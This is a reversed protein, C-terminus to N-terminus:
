PYKERITDVLDEWGEMEDENFLWLCLQEYTMRALLNMNYSHVHEREEEGLAGEIESLIAYLWPKKGKWYSFPLRNSLEGTARDYSTMFAGCLQELRAGAYEYVDLNPSQMLGYLLIYIDYAGSYLQAAPEKGGCYVRKVPSYQTRMEDITCEAFGFDILYASGTEAEVMINSVHLDNHYLRYPSLELWLLTTLVQKLIVLIQDVDLEPIYRDQHVREQESHIIDFLTWGKIQKQVMLLNPKGDM